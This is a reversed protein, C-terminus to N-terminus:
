MKEALAADIMGRWCDRAVMDGIRKGKMRGTQDRSRPEVNGGLMFMGASPKRMVAVIRKAETCYTEQTGPELGDWELGATRALERAVRRVVGGSMANPAPPLQATDALCFQRLAATEETQM